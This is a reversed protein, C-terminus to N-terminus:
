PTLHVEKLLTTFRSDSRIPDFKPESKLAIMYPDREEVAKQLLAFAKDKNGLYIEILIFYSTPVFTRTSIDKLKERLAMAEKKRGIVADVCALLYINTSDGTVRVETQYADYALDYQKKMFYSDGLNSHGYPFTSDIDITKQTQDIAKDYQRSQYYIYGVNQNIRISLPDLQQARKIERIAEDFSGQNALCMAYWHHATAYNQNLEIAKRYERNAGEINWDYCNLVDALAAHAEALDYDLKLAYQAAEREKPYAENPSMYYNGGMLGYGEAIGAYALAYNPDKELSQRFYDIGKM